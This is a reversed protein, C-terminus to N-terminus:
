EAKAALEAGVTGGIVGKKALMRVINYVATVGAVVVANWPEPVMGGFAAWLSVGTTLWFETTQYGPKVMGQQVEKSKNFLRNLLLLAKLKESITM